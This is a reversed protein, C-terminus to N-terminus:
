AAVVGDLVPPDTTGFEAMWRAPDNGMSFETPTAASEVAWLQYEDAAAPSAGATGRTFFVVNTQTGKALTAQLPNTTDDEYFTFSSDDATDEGAITGTFSSSLKPVNIRSNSFRFGSIDAISDTIEEGATAEIVTMAAPNAVTAVVFVRTVGRRFFEAM